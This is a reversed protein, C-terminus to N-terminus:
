VPSFCVSKIFIGWGQAIELYNVVMRVEHVSISDFNEPQKEHELTLHYRLAHASSYTKSKGRNSFCIPCRLPPIYTKNSQRLRYM